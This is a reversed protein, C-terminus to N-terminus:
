SAIEEPVLESAFAFLKKNIDMDQKFNKVERAKRSRDGSMYTFDGSIIKEQIVNFVSWLDNGKDEDRVPNIIEDLNIDVVKLQEETFRTTLSKHALDKMQDTTLEISKMRNMSEVTLPLREVMEKIQVQLDEFTYGMHRMKVDEFKQDAVVLGNSCILRFLGATFTFANKGDHSNTLLIQPFVTDGDAGNIVVDPNRFTLLHKQFGKTTNKRAKVQQANVVGWGLKKMDELVQATPIHTYHKSVNEAPTETFVTPAVERIEDNSLFKLEESNQDTFM